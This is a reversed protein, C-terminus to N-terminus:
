KVLVWKKVPILRCTRGNCSQVYTTKYEWKKVDVLKGNEYYEHQGKFPSNSTLVWKVEKVPNLCECETCECNDCKCEPACAKKEEGPNDPTVDQEAKEEVALSAYAIATAAHSKSLEISVASVFLIGLIIGIAKM